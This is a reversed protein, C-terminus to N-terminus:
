FFAAIIDRTNKHSTVVDVSAGLSVGLVLAFGVAALSILLSSRMGYLITSYIDRGQDDTGLWFRPDGGKVWRPPNESDM